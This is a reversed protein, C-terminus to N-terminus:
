LFRGGPVRAAAGPAASRHSAGPHEPTNQSAAPHLTKLKVPRICIYTFIGAKVSRAWMGSCTCISFKVYCISHCLNNTLGECNDTQVIQISVALVFTTKFNM